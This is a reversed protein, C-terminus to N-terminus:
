NLGCSISLRRLIEVASGDQKRIGAAARRQEVLTDSVEHTLRKRVLLELECKRDRVLKKRVSDAEVDALHLLPKRFAALQCIGQNRTGPPLWEQLANM